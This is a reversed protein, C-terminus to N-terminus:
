IVEYYSQVLGSAFSRTYLHRLIIEPLANEFLPKGTGLIIPIRTLTLQKVLGYDLFSRAAEGRDFYIRQWRLGKWYDLLEPPTLKPTLQALGSVTFPLTTLTHSLIQIPKGTYPRDQSSLVKEFSKRGMVLCDMWRFFEGFGYDENPDESKFKELWDIKGNNRAIFGDLSIELFIYIGM